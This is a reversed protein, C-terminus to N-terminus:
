CTSLDFCFLVFCICPKAETSALFASQPLRIRHNMTATLKVLKSIALSMLSGHRSTCKQNDRALIDFAPLAMSFTSMVMRHTSSRSSPSSPWSLIGMEEKEAERSEMIRIDKRCARGAVSLQIDQFQSDLHM